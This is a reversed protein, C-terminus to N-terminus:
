EGPLGATGAPPLIFALVNPDPWAVWREDVEGEGLFNMESVWYGTVTGQVNTDVSVIVAVHGSGADYLWGTGDRTPNWVVAGGIPPPEGEAEPDMEVLGAAAARQGGASGPWEDANGNIGYESITPVNYDAWYTCQGFPFSDPYGTPPVWAFVGELPEQVVCCTTGSPPPGTYGTPGGTPAGGSLWNAYAPYRVDLISVAASSSVDAVMDSEYDDVATALQGAGADSTAGWGSLVYAALDIEDTPNLMGAPEGALAPQVTPCPGLAGPVSDTPGYTQGSLTVDEEDAGPPPKPPWKGVFDGWAMGMVGFNGVSGAGGNECAQTAFGSEQAAIALLLPESANYEKAAADFLSMLTASPM